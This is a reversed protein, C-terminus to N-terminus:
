FALSTMYYVTFRVISASVPVVGLAAAIPSPYAAQLFQREAIRLRELLEPMKHQEQPSLKSTYILKGIGRGAFKKSIRMPACHLKQSLYTRLTTTGDVCDTIMGREFMAVLLLAYNEEAPLWKGSRLQPYPQLPTTLTSALRMHRLLAPDVVLPQQQQQLISVNPVNSPLILNNNLSPHTPFSITTQSLHPAVSIPALSTGTSSKAGSIAIASTSQLPISPSITSGLKSDLSGLGVTSISPNVENHCSRQENNPASVPDTTEKTTTANILHESSM